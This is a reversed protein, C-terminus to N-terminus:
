DTPPPNTTGSSSAGDHTSSRGTGNGKVVAPSNNPIQSDVLILM